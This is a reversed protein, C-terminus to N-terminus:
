IRKWHYGAATEVVYKDVVRKALAGCITGTTIGHEKAAETISNYIKGTEVCQVKTHRSPKRHLVKYAHIINEQISLWELNSARNDTRIGNKHNITHKNEPNPIFARAVLTHIHFFGMKGKNWLHICPYGYRDTQQKLKKIRHEKGNRSYVDGCDTVYYGPFDKIQFARAM